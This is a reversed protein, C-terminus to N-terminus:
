LLARAAEADAAIQAKLADLGDLKMEPRLYAVLEVEIVKGYLDGSWDMLWTELLEEPPDIMPRIGLNAVGKVRQGGPLRVMVAYVGYAPRQYDGLRQNATPFGLTRGLKAGHEVTGRLTYPRTLLAAAGAPDAARLAARIRTSSIVGGADTVPSVVSATFGLRDGLTALQAVDGSRGQGFTFDSGTVVGTVGLRRVLWQEVFTDAPLAALERTFPIMVTADIGFAALLDMRQTVATLAFPPLDPQFLRAPHPSFSAVLAPVGRAQALALAEGVVAQHGAHFGDFNGLAAIGGRFREPLIAGNTIREM